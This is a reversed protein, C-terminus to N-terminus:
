VLWCKVIFIQIWTFAEYSRWAAGIWFLFFVGWQWGERCFVNLQFDKLWFVGLIFFLLFKNELVWWLLSNGSALVALQFFSTFVSELFLLGFFTHALYIIVVEYALLFLKMRFILILVNALSVRSNELIWRFVFLSIRRKRHLFIAVVAVLVRWACVFPLFENRRRVIHRIFSSFNAKSSPLGGVSVHIWLSFLWYFLIITCSINPFDLLLLTHLDVWLQM